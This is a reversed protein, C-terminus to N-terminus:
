LINTRQLLLNPEGERGTAISLKAEPPSPSASLCLTLRVYGVVVQEIIIYSLVNLFTYLRKQLFLALTNLNELTRANANKLNAGKTNINDSLGTIVM